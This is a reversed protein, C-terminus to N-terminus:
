LGAPRVPAPTLPPNHLRPNSLDVQALLDRPLWPQAERGKGAPRLLGRRSTPGVPELANALEDRDAPRESRWHFLRDGFAQIQDPPLHEAVLPAYGSGFFAWWVPYPPLGGWQGRGALYTLPETHVSYSVSRGSWQVGRQVEATALVADTREAFATFFGMLAARWDPEDLSDRLFTVGHAAIGRQKGAAVHGDLAPQTTKFYVTGDASRAFDAFAADGGEEHKHPLPEFEGYRRPLLEPMWRRSLETWVLAAAGPDEAARVYWRVNVTAALGAEVRPATRLQGRKWVQGTQQDLVVGSVAQALRRAVKEAHRVEVSASGEVVVEYLFRPALVFATVEEPVDEDELAVPDALTFSYSRRVGRLVTLADGSSGDEVALGAAHVLDLLDARSLADRAFVQLDYSV